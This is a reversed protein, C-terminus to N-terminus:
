PELGIRLYEIASQIKFSPKAMVTLNLPGM